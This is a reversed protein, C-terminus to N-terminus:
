AILKGAKGIKRPFRSPAFLPLLDHYATEGILYSFTKEMAVFEAKSFWQPLDVAAAAKTPIHEFFSVTVCTALDSQASRGRPQKGCWEAYEYIRRILDDNRPADYARHFAATLDFWLLYPTEAREIENRFEPFRQLAERRWASM